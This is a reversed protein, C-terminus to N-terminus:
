YNRKKKANPDYAGYSAAYSPEGASDNVKTKVRKPKATKLKSIREFEAARNSNQVIPAHVAGQQTRFAGKSSSGSSQIVMPPTTTTTTTITTTVGNASQVQRRTKSSGRNMMYGHARPARVAPLAPRAGQGIPQAPGVRPQGVQQPVSRSSGKQQEPQLPPAKVFVREQPNWGNQTQQVEILNTKEVKIEQSQAGRPASLFGLLFGLFIASIVLFTNKMAVKLFNGGLFTYLSQYTRFM